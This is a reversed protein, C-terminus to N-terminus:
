TRADNVKILSLEQGREGFRLRDGLHLQRKGAIPKNNLLAGAEGCLIFVQDGQREIQGLYDPLGQISLNIEGAAISSGNPSEHNNIAVRGLPLAHHEYLLHTPNEPQLTAATAVSRGTAVGDLQCPLGTVLHIQNDDSEIYQRLNLINRGLQDAGVLDIDGYSALSELFGPYDGLRDSVLVQCRENGALVSIQQAIKRYQADLKQVLSDGTLKAQYVTNATKLEMLLSGSQNSGQRLWQPLENYLLQESEANHQPNFRCQQIFLSTTLQMMLDMFSQSGVGPVQVVTERQLVGDRLNFRSLVVQHLQLDAFILSESRAQSIVSALASDVVGVSQFPCQKVLGLLIALQHATFNGPVALVVQEDLGALEAVHLLHAYALDAFHRVGGLSNGLPDLSLQQWFKNYSQTPHLRAQQEAAEGMKLSKNGVLAFGPSAVLLGGEGIVRVASDNLEVVKFSM